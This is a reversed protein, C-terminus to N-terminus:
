NQPNFNENEGFQQKQKELYRLFSSSEKVLIEGPLGLVFRGISFYDTVPAQLRFNSEEEKIYPKMLPFDKILLEYAKKTMLLSISDLQSNRNQSLVRNGSLPIKHLDQHDWKQSLLKLKCIKEIQYNRCIKSKEELANVTDDLNIKYPEIIFNYQDKNPYSQYQEIFVKKREEIATSLIEIKKLNLDIQFKENIRVDYLTQLKKILSDRMTLPGNSKNLLSIILSVEEESFILIQGIAKSATNNVLRYSGENREIIFGCEELLNLDRYLTRTSVNLREQLINRSYYRNGALLM